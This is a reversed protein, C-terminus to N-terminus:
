EIKNTQYHGPWHCIFFTMAVAFYVLTSLLSTREATMPQLASLITSNVLVVASGLLLLMLLAGIRDVLSKLDMTSLNALVWCSPLIFPISLLCQVPIFVLIYALTNETESGAPFVQLHNMYPWCLMSIKLYVLGVLVPMVLSSIRLGPKVFGALQPYNSECKVELHNILQNVRFVDM